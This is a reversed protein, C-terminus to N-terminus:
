LLPRGDTIDGITAADAGADLERWARLALEGQEPAVVAV